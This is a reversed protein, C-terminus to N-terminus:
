GMSLPITNGYSGQGGPQLWAKRVSGVALLLDALYYRFSVSWFDCLSNGKSLFVLRSNKKLGKSFRRPFPM